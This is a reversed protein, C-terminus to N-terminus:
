FDVRIIRRIWAAGAVMLVAAVGLMIRGLTTGTLEALYDPSITGILGAIVFPLGVLIYASIRGEASLAKVQRRIQNRDRITTMVTDLVEALDGGVEHQIEIAEVVWELDENEMRRAMAAMSQEISRGLRNEVVVRNFERDTPAPSEAAVTSIAQTLGYGARLSGAIIQLTGELQDAFARRRRDRLTRLVTRPAAAGLSGLVIAGPLGALTLGALALVVIATGSVIVFEGPRLAIGARDLATDISGAPRREAIRDGMTRVRRALRGIPGGHRRDGTPHAPIPMPHEDSRGRLTVLLTAVAGLFVLTIGAPLTWGRQWPTPTVSVALASDDLLPASPSGSRAATVAGPAPLDVVVSSSAIGSGTDLLVLIETAGTADTAFELRYTGTLETALGSYLDDLQAADTATVVRGPAISALADRDTEATALAIAVVDARVAGAAAVADDLAAASVTDGGDSLVLMVRRTGQGEFLSAGLVVADYLATEGIAALRLISEAADEGTAVVRADDGFGIVTVTASEPLAEVFGAAAHRAAELAPGSMSGSTDLLLVVELPETVGAYVDVPPRMGDVLVAFDEADPTHGAMATPLRITISVTPLDTTDVNEIVLGESATARPAIAITLVLVALLRAPHRM